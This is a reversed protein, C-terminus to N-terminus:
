RVVESEGALPERWEIDLLHTACSICPDYARILMELDKAVAERPVRGHLEPVRARLDAEINALNQGTPIVLNARQIIGAADVTYEHFLTGRPVECAGVGTGARRVDAGLSPPLPCAAILADLRALADAHCHVIEVAQALSQLFPNHAPRPLRLREAAARAAPAVREGALNWRALAGVAYSSRTGRAHKATAHDVLYEGILQRYSAIPQQAGTSSTVVGDYLAYDGPATLALYETPRAFQPLELGALLEITSDIDPTIAALSARAAVLDGRSPSRAFGGIRYGIPHIHRGVLRACVENATRKLRLAREVVQPHTSALPIVSGMGFLDPAVLFYLHLVHSQLIEADLLVKRLETVWAPPTVGLAAEAAKVSVTTHGVACIGCVRATISPAEEVPRGVLLSEFFRPSEVIELRVDEVVGDASRITLNGHGEVRTLHKIALDLREM